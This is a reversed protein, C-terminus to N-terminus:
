VGARAGTGGDVESISWDRRQEVPLERKLEPPTFRSAYDPFVFAELSLGKDEKDFRKASFHVLINENIKHDLMRVVRDLALVAIGTARLTPRKPIPPDEAHWGIADEAGNNEVPIRNDEFLQLM